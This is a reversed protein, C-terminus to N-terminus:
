GLHKSAVIGFDFTANQDSLNRSLAFRSARLARSKGDAPQLTQATHCHLISSSAPRSAQLTTATEFHRRRFRERAHLLDDCQRQDTEFAIRQPAPLVTSYAPTIDEPIRSLM